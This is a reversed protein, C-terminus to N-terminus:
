RIGWCAMIVNMTREPPTNAARREFFSDRILKEYRRYGLSLSMIEKPTKGQQLLEEIIEFDNRQGQAGKIEGKQEILIVKEGKEAWKGRKNVYDEAQEKSGKTPELHMDPFAKKIASFRM